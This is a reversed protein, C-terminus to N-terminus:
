VAIFTTMPPIPVPPVPAGGDAMLNSPRIPPVPPVPAGGDAVLTKIFSNHPVPPVPAGGDATLNSNPIPPPVPPVPAGGDAVLMKDQKFHPVPPVPAGGDAVPRQIPAALSQGDHRPQNTSSVSPAVLVISAFAALVLSSLKQFHM